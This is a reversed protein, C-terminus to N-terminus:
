GCLKRKSAMKGNRRKGHTWVQYDGSTKARAANWEHRLLKMEQPTLDLTGNQSEALHRAMTEADDTTIDAIRYDKTSESSQTDDRCSQTMANRIGDV